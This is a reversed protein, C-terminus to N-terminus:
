DHNIELKDIYQQRRRRMRELATAQDYHKKIITPDANVRASVVEPPLGCNLQWTISGSRIPHPSRSSPCKSAARPVTWSCIEPDRDHPCVGITCPLTVKYSWARISSTSPRGQRTTLLPRRGADDHVDWWNWSDLYTEVVDVTESPLSVPREGDKKNKLPTGTDPRHRFEIYGEDPYWDQLDLARIGGMRAGTYWVLEFFAHLRSGYDDESNRFYRIIDLGREPELMEDNIQESASVNPVNVKEPLDPDVADISALYKLFQRLTKMNGLLTTPAIDDGRRSTEFQDLLWGNLDSVTEIQQEECWQVFQKLEYHYTELSRESSDPRRHDM